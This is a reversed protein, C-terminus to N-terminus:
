PILDFIHNIKYTNFCRPQFKNLFKYTLNKEECSYDSYHCM